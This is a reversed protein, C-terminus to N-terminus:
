RRAAALDLDVRLGEGHADVALTTSGAAPRPAASPGASSGRRLRHCRQQGTAWSSSSSSEPRRRPRVAVGAPQLRGHLGPQDAVQGVDRVEAGAPQRRAADHCRSRRRRGAPEPARRHAPSQSAVQVRARRGCGDSARRAADRASPLPRQRSSRAVTGSTSRAPGPRQDVGAGCWGSTRPAAHASAPPRGPAPPAPPPGRPRARSGADRRRAAARRQVRVGHWAISARSPGASRGSRRRLGAIWGSSRSRGAPREAGARSSSASTWARASTRRKADQRRAVVVAVVVAM